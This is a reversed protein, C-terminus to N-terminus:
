LGGLGIPHLAGCGRTDRLIIGLTAGLIVSLTASLDNVM